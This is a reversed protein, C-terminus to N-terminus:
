VQVGNKVISNAVGEAAATILASAIIGITKISLDLGKEAITKMTKQWTGDNRIKDLFDCGQWTLGNAFFIYYPNNDAAQARFNQILGYEYMISCHYGIEQLEYGEINLYPNLDTKTELAFLIKRVLEMDRKM